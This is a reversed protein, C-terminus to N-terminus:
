FPDVQPFQLEDETVLFHCRHSIQLIDTAFSKPAVDQDHAVRHSLSLQQWHLELCSEVLSTDGSM